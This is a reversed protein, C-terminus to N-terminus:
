QKTETSRQRLEIIGNIMYNILSIIVGTLIATGFSIDLRPTLNIALYVVFGNVVLMFVGVTLLIAPLSIVVLIPKLITNALSLVLGAILYTAPSADIGQFGTGFLRSALWVGFSNLLWRLLFIAFQKRM